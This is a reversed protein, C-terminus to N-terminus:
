RNTEIDQGAHLAEVEDVPMRERQGNVLGDIWYTLSRLIYLGGHALCVIGHHRCEVWFVLSKYFVRVLSLM